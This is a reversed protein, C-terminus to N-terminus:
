RTRRGRDIETITHPKRALADIEDQVTGSPWLIRVVDVGADQGIGISLREPGQGLYGAGGALQFTQRRAGSFTEITAGAGQRNDHTGTLALQLTNNKDSGIGKLLVPPGGNQTILLYTSGDEGTFAVVGRPDRLQIKDLGTERTVNQFGAFGGHGDGGLNRLLVVRGEDSFTDGVAALDVWGDHDYDLAALGWGRMWLPGPLRMREFSTGDVNRWLSLGPSSWHTFALDMWGDHDFDLAVAGATPGPMRSAWPTEARFAGERQNLYITPERNWGTVVFDMADDNNLDCSLADVSPATGGLGTQKTADAFVGRESGRWLINGPAAADAPFTFPQASNRLPFNDFRTAYLDLNGDNNYDAFTLGLVLGRAGLGTQETVNSFTAGGNNHFLEVGDASSVALDTYGDNDYDGTACGLAGQIQLKATKTVNVFRGHGDNRYLAARGKGDADALFIDPRGDNNYDFVCAGSGAFKALTGAGSRQRAARAAEALEGARQARTEHARRRVIPAAVAIARWPLGAAETVNVFHVPIAAPAPEIPVLMERALSYKGQEGYATSAPVGLGTETLHEARNLHQLAGNVDGTHGEAQALGFEAPLNFRDLHIANSFSSIAQPYQKAQLYISGILYQTAADHPDISAVKEFDQVAVGDNGAAQEVLGLNFWARANQPHRQASKALINHADNLRGMYLLAIGMNLCGTDSAPNMVCATQFRGLAPTFEHRDMLATGVNNARIAGTFINSAPPQSHHAPKEVRRVPRLPAPHKRHQAAAAIGAGCVLGACAITLLYRRSGM